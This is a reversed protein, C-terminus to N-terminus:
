EYLAMLIVQVDDVLSDIEHETADNYRTGITVFMRSNHLITM